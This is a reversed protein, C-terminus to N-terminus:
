GAAAADADFGATAGGRWESTEDNRAGMATFRHPRWVILGVPRWDHVSVPLVGYYKGLRARLVPDQAQPFLLEYDRIGHYHIVLRYYDFDPWRPPFFGHWVLGDDTLNFDRGQTLEKHEGLGGRFTFEAYEIAYAKLTPIPFMADTGQDREPANTPFTLEFVTSRM